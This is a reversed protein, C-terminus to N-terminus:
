QAIRVNFKKRLNDAYDSIKQPILEQLVVRKEHYNLDGFKVPVRPLFEEVKFIFYAYPTKFPKSVKGPENSAIIQVFRNHPEIVQIGMDGGIEATRHESYKRAAEDFPLGLKIQLWVYWTKLKKLWKKYFPLYGPSSIKILRYKIEPPRKVYTDEPINFDILGEKELLKFVMLDNKLKEKIEDKTIGYSEIFELFERENGYERFILNFYGEVEEDSVSINQNRAELLLLKENILENLAKSRFDPSSTDTYGEFAKLKVYSDLDTQTIKMDGVTALVKMAIILTVVFNM